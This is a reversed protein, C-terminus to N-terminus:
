GEGRARPSPVRRRMEKYVDWKQKQEPTLIKEFSTEFSQHAAKFQERLAKESILLEGAQQANGADVAAKIQERLDRKQERLPEVTTRLTERLAKLQEQQQENLDLVEALNGRRSPKALAAVALILSLIVIPIRKM